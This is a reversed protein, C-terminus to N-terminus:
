AAVGCVLPVLHRPVEGFIGDHHKTVQGALAHPRWPIIRHLRRHLGQSRREGLGDCVDDLVEGVPRREEGSEGQRARQAHVEGAVVVVQQLAHDDNGGRGGDARTFRPQLARFEDLAVAGDAKDRAGLIAPERGVEDGLLGALHSGDHLPEGCGVVVRVGLEAAAEGGVIEPAVEVLEVGGDHQDGALLILRMGDCIEFQHQFRCGARVHADHGVDGVLHGDGRRAGDGVDDATEESPEPLLM